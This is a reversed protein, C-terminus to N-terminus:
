EERDDVKRPRGSRPRNRTSGTTKYKRLIKIATDYPIGEAAAATVTSEHALIRGIFRNKKPSDHQSRSTRTPPMHSLLVFLNHNLNFWLKVYRCDRRAHRLYDAMVKTVWSYIYFFSIARFAM